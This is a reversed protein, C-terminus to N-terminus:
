ILVLDGTPIKDILCNTHVRYSVGELLVDITEVGVNFVMLKDGPSVLMTGGQAIPLEIRKRCEYKVGKTPKRAAM